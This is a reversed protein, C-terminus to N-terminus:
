EQSGGEGLRIAVVPGTESFRAVYVAITGDSTTKLKVGMPGGDNGAPWTVTGGLGAQKCCVGYFTDEDDYDGTPGEPYRSEDWIGVQATDMAATLPREKRQRGRHGMVAVWNLRELGQLSDVTGAHWTVMGAGVQEWDDVKSQHHWLGPMVGSIRVQCHVLSRSYSPDSVLAVGAAGMVWEPQNSREKNAKVKRKPQTGAKNSGNGGVGGGCAGETARELSAKVENETGESPESARRKKEVPM